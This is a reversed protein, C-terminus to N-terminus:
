RGWPRLPPPDGLPDALEDVQPFLNQTSLLQTLEAPVLFRDMDSLNAKAWPLLREIEPSRQASSAEQLAVWERLEAAKRETEILKALLATRQTERNKRATALNRRRSLEHIDSMVASANSM